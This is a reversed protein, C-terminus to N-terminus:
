AVRPSGKRLPIGVRQQLGHNDILQIVRRHPACHESLTGYQFTIFGVLFWRGDGIDELRPPFVRLAEEITVTEGIQFCALRINVKWVGSADCKDNIYKWFLKYPAPLNQFWEKDWQNTETFRKM